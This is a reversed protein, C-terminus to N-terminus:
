LCEIRQSGLLMNLIARDGLNAVTGICGCLEGGIRYRRDVERCNRVVYVLLTLSEGRLKMLFNEDIKLPQAIILGVGHVSCDVFHGRLFRDESYPLIAIPRGCAARAERRREDPSVGGNNFDQLNLSTDAHPGM